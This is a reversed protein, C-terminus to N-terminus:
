ADGGSLAFVKNMVCVSLVFTLIRDVQMFERCDLGGISAFLRRIKAPCYFEQDDLMASNFVDGMYNKM